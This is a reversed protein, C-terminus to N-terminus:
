RGYVPRQALDSKESIPSETRSIKFETNNKSIWCLESQSEITDDPMSRDEFYSMNIAPHLRTKTGQDIGM